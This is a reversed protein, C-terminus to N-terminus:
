PAGTVTDWLMVTGDNSASALLHGDPSYTVATVLDSHGKLAGRLAGTAPDWFMVTGDRSGPALLLGDGSFTVVDAHISHSEHTGRSTETTSDWLMARRDDSAPAILEGDPSFAAAGVWDPHGELTGHSTGTVLDWLIVTKDRSASALLRGDPSFAVANIGDSHGKLTDRLTGAAPDWLMVTRDDSTSALLRGDPSFAVATVGGSHGKLTRCSTGTVPDWLLVTNDLSASALLYGDPSFAVATVGDSHGKLTGRSAGTVPDWLVVTNDWSASALLQGDPSFIVAEVERSHGELAQLSPSWNQETILMSTVWSFAQNWFERRVKSKKPSFGLASCYLQLPAEGIISRYNLIFRKADHILAFLDIHKGPKTNALDADLVLIRNVLGSVTLMSQLSRIMLVGEPMKGILSLAELWHLLHKQLFKHVEGNSCLGAKERQSPQLHELHEVWYRCAYQVEVPLFRKMTSSDVDKVSTAPVNLHCIDRRLHYSMLWLCRKVLNFHAKEGDVYFLDNSCRQGSRLFDRFSPHLLRIPSNRSHPDDWIPVDLVTGLPVLMNMVVKEKEGLSGGKEVLLNALATASLSDLLIVISGVIQRFQNSLMEREYEDCCGIVLHELVTIYLSDLEWTPSKEPPRKDRNDQLILSLRHEPDISDQIFRCATAAYIFLGDASQVLLKIKQGGPWEQPLGREKRIMGLRNQFFITIDRGVISSSINHLVFDQHLARSMDRFGLRIPTEPRSTVFIRLRITNLVKAQTFLRIILKIDNENECEDLADFVLVLIQSQLLTDNLKSLPQLILRKWQEGLGQECINSSGAIAASIHPKVAPLTNALQAAVSTFFRTAHGLDGRGRSFFFSAGLRGIEDFDRAVTRAITSKGTGAMGNLWFICAGGPDNSWAM